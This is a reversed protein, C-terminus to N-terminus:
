QARVWKIIENIKLNRQQMTLPLECNAANVLSDAQKRTDPDAISSELSRQFGDWNWSCIFEPMVNFRKIMNQLIVLADNHHNNQLLYIAALTDKIQKYGDTLLGSSNIDELLEDFSERDINATVYTEMLDLDIESMVELTLASKYVAGKLRTRGKILESTATSLDGFYLWALAGSERRRSAIYANSYDKQEIYDIAERFCQYYNKAQSQQGSKHNLATLYWYVSNLDSDSGICQLKRVHEQAKKFNEQKYFCNTAKYELNAKIGSESARWQIQKGIKTISKEVKDCDDENRILQNYSEMVTILEERSEGSARPQDEPACSIPQEVSCQFSTTGASDSLSENNRQQNSQGTLKSIADPRMLSQMFQMPTQSKNGSTLDFSLEPNQQQLATMVEAMQQKALWGTFAFKEPDSDPPLPEKQNLHQWVLMGILCSALLPLITFLALKNRVTKRQKVVRENLRAAREDTRQETKKIAGQYYRRAVAENGQHRLLEAINYHLEPDDPQQKLRQRAENLLATLSADSALGWKKKLQLFSSKDAATM